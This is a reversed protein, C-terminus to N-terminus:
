AVAGLSPPNQARLRACLDDFGMPRGFLYGQARACGLAMLMAAQDHQEIGEAVVSMRLERALLLIIQVIGAAQPNEGIESVFSRDIKLEDFPFNRLYSLSSYGTGFDDLSVTVGMAQLRRMLAETGRSDRMLVSETIELKLRQPALGSRALAAAVGEAIDMRMLQVPSLNVSVNIPLPFRMADRCARELMIRGIETIKGSSEAAPIFESAPLLGRVPHRWRVLAEVGVIKGSPLDVIPQYVPEIETELHAENLEIELRGRHLTRSLMAEDFLTRRSKGELKGTTLALDARHVLEEAGLGDETVFSFGLTADISLFHDDIRLPARLMEHLEALTAEIGPLHDETVLLVMFEDGGFRASCAQAQRDQFRTLRGGIEALLADGAKHGLVDNIPKFGDLDIAVVVLTQGERRQQVAAELGTMFFKRNALGTLMDFSALYANQQAITRQLRYSKVLSRNSWSLGLILLTSIAILSLTIAFHVKHLFRLDESSNARDLQYFAYAMSALESIPLELAMVKRHLDALRADIDPARVITEIDELQRAITALLAKRRPDGAVFQGFAGTSWTNLRAFLIDLNLEIDALREPSFSDEAVAVARALSFLESRGHQGTWAIDHRLGREVADDLARIVLPMAIMAICLLIAIVMLPLKLRKLLRAVADRFTKAM